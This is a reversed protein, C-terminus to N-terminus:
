TFGLTVIYVHPALPRVNYICLSANKHVMFEVVYFSEAYTIDVLHSVAGSHNVQIVLFLRSENDGLRLSGRFCKSIDTSRCILNTTSLFTCNLCGFKM